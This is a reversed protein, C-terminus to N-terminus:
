SIPRLLRRSLFHAYDVRTLTNASLGAGGFEPAGDRAGGGLVVIAGVDLDGVLGPPLAPYPDELPAHLARAMWPTAFLYLSAVGLVVLARGIGRWRMALWWGALVLVVNLGPPVVLARLAVRVLFSFDDM